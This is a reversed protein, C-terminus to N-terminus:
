FCFTQNVSFFFLVFTCYDLFQFELHQGLLLIELHNDVGLKQVESSPEFNCYFVFFNM